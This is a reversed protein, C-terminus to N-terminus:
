GSRHPVEHLLASFPVVRGRLAGGAQVDQLEHAHGDDPHDREQHQQREEDPVGVRTFLKLGQICIRDTTM